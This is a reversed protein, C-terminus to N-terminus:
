RKACHYCYLPQSEHNPCDTEECYYAVQDRTCACPPLKDKISFDDEHNTSEM